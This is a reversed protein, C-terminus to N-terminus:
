RDFGEHLHANVARLEPKEDMLRIVRSLPFFDSEGQLERFISRVLELDEPHDVTFALEPRRLGQPSRVKLIDFRDPHDFFYPITHELYLAEDTAAHIRELAAVAILEAACGYPWGERNSAYMFDHARERHLRVLETCCDPDILPDDGGVRVIHTVGHAKACLIFRLLVDDLPGRFCAVGHDQCFSEIADDSADDSTAVVLPLDGIGAQLREVQRQLMPKGEVGMLVKGPLRTSSMRAQIVVAYRNDTGM